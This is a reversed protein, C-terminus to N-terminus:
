GLDLVTGTAKNQFTALFGLQVKFVAIKKAREAREAAERSCESWEGALFAYDVSAYDFTKM